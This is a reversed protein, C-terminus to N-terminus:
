MTQENTFRNIPNSPMIHNQNQYTIGKLHSIREDLAESVATGTLYTPSSTSSELSLLLITMKPLADRVLYVATNCCRLVSRAHRGAFYSNDPPVFSRFLLVIKM